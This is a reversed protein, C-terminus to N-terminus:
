GSVEVPVHADTRIDNTSWTTTVKASLANQTCAYTSTLRAQGACVLREIAKSANM